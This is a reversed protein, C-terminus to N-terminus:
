LSPVYRMIENERYPIAGFLLKGKAGFEKWKIEAFSRISMPKGKGLNYIYPIGKNIKKEVAYHIFMNAINEVPTFDRIQEGFTMPFDKGTLAAKKLSPWFRDSREGEGYFHFPRLVTLEIKKFKAFSLATITAAAKSSAYPGIPELPANTPVYEYREASKGYEFCSGCIIVRNVGADIAQHWLNLSDLVNCKYAKDWSQEIPNVGYAALHILVNCGALAESLNSNLSGVFWKLKNQNDYSSFIHKRSLGNVKYGLALAKKVVYKGLFGDAGTVFIKM